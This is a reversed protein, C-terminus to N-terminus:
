FILFLWNFIVHNLDVYQIFGKPLDVVEDNHHSQIDSGTQKAVGSAAVFLLEWFTNELGVREFLECGINMKAFKAGYIYGVCFAAIRINKYSNIATKLSNSSLFHLLYSILIFKNNLSDDHLEKESYLIAEVDFSEVIYAYRIGAEEKLLKFYKFIIKLSESAQNLM